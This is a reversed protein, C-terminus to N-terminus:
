GRPDFLLHERVEGWREPVMRRVVFRWVGGRREVRDVYRGVVVPQLPLSETAQFVSFRSRVEAADSGLPDVVVNTIVHATSPTGDAHRRTTATYLAVIEDRGSAIRNGDQDLVTADSLLEGVAEFDGADVAEAYRALLEAILLRDEAGLEGEAAGDGAL